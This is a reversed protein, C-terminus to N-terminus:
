FLLQSLPSEIGAISAELRWQRDAGLHYLSFEGQDPLEGDKYPEVVMLSNGKLAIWDNGNRTNEVARIPLEVTTIQWDVSNRRDFHLLRNDRTTKLVFNDPTGSMCCYQHLHSAFVGIEAPFEDMEVSTWQGSNLLLIWIEDKRGTEVYEHSFLFVLNGANYLDDVRSDILDSFPETVRWIGQADRGFLLSRDRQQGRDYFKLLQISGQNVRHGDYGSLYATSCDCAESYIKTQSWRAENYSQSCMELRGAPQLSFIAEGGDVLSDDSNFDKSSFASLFPVNDARAAGAAFALSFLLLSAVVFRRASLFSTSNSGVSRLNSMTYEQYKCESQSIM